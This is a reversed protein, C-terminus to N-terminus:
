FFLIKCNVSGSGRLTILINDSDGVQYVDYPADKGVLIWGIPKRGLRHEVKLPSSTIQQEIISVAGTLPSLQIFDFVQSINSQMRNIASDSTVIKQLKM